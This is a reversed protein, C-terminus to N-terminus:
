SSAKKRSARWFILAGLGIRLSSFVIPGRHPGFTQVIDEQYTQLAVLNAGDLLILFASWTKQFHQDWWARVWNV